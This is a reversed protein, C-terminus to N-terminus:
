YVIQCLVAEGSTVAQLLGAALLCAHMGAARLACRRNIIMPTKYGERSEAESDSDNLTNLYNGGRLPAYNPAKYASYDPYRCRHAFLLYTM